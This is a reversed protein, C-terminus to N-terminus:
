NSGYMQIGGVVFSFSKKKIRYKAPLVLQIPPFAGIQKKLYNVLELEYNKVFFM